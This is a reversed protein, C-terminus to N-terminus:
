GRLVNVLMPLEDLRDAAAVVSAHSGTATTQEVGLDGARAPAHHPVQHPQVNTGSGSASQVFCVPGRSDLQDPARDARPDACLVDPRRRCALRARARGLRPARCGSAPSFALSTRRSPSSRWSALLARLSRRRGRRSDRPIRAEILQRVAVPGTDDLRSWSRNPRTADVARRSGRRAGQADVRGAGGRRRGRRRRHLPPRTAGRDRRHSRRWRATGSSSRASVSRRVRQFLPWASCTSWASRVAEVGREDRGSRATLSSPARRGCPDM